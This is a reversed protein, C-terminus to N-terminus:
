FNVGGEMKRMTSEINLVGIKGRILGMLNWFYANKLGFNSRTSRCCPSFDVFFSSLPQYIHVTPAYIPPNEAFVMSGPSKRGGGPPYDSRETTGQPTAGEALTLFPHEVGQM